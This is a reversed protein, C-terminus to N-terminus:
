KSKQDGKFGNAAWFACFGLIFAGVPVALASLAISGYDWITFYSVQTMWGSFNTYCVTVYQNPPEDGPVHKLDCTAWIYILWGAVWVGSAVLWVRFLGRKLNMIPFSTVM